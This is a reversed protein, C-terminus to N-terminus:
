RFITWVKKWLTLEVDIVRIESDYLTTNSFNADM